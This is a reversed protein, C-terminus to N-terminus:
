AADAAGRLLWGVGYAVIAALGGLALTELGDRWWRRRVVIGKVVGVLFFTVGTAVASAAFIGVGLSVDAADLIFTVLPIAGAILFAVFTALGAKMAGQAGDEPGYEEMVASEAWAGPSRTLAAVVQELDDGQLGRAAYAARLTERAEDPHRQLHAQADLLAQERLHADAQKGLYNSVAMSLGDAFLNALGLIVVVAPALGAGVAGAVVAFTTVTGDVAGLVADRLQAPGRPPAVPAGARHELISSPRM